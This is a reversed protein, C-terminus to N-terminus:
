PLLEDIAQALDATTVRAGFRRVEGTFYGPRAPRAEIRGIAGGTVYTFLKVPYHKIASPEAPRTTYGEFAEDVAVPARRFLDRM